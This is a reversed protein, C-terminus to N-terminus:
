WDSLNTGKKLETLCYRTTSLTSHQLCISFGCPRLVDPIPPRQSTLSFKWYYRRRATFHDIRQSLWPCTPPMWIRWWKSHPGGEGPGEVLVSPRISTQFEKHWSYWTRGKVAITNYNDKQIFGPLCRGGAVQQFTAHHDTGSYWCQTNNTAVARSRPWLDKRAVEYPSQRIRWLHSFFILRNNNIPHSCHETTQWKVEWSPSTRSCMTWGLFYWCINYM